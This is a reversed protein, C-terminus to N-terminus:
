INNEINDNDENIKVLKKIKIHIEAFLYIYIYRRVFIYEVHM